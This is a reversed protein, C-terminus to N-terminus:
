GYQVWGCAVAIIAFIGIFLAIFVLVVLIVDIWLPGGYYNCDPKCPMPLIMPDPRPPIKM